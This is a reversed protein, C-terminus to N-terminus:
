PAPILKQSRKKAWAYVSPAGAFFWLAVLADMVFCGLSSSPAWHFLTNGYLHHMLDWGAHSMWAAGIWRYSRLGFYAPFVALAMYFIEWIGFGGNAYLTAFGAAAVANFERRVPEKVASMVAIFIVAAIAPAIVGPLVLEPRV